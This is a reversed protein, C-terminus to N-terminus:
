INSRILIRKHGKYPLTKLLEAMIKLIRTQFIPNTSFHLSYSCTWLPEYKIMKFIYKMQALYEILLYQILLGM